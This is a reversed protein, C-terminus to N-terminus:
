LTKIKVTLQEVVVDSGNDDNTIKLEISEGDGVDDVFVIFSASGGDSSNSSDCGKGKIPTGDHFAQIEFSDTGADAGKFSVRVDIELNQTEGTNNQITNTTVSFDDGGQTKIITLNMHEFDGPTTLTTVSANDEVYGFFMLGDRPQLELADENANVAVVYGAKGAAEIENIEADFAVAGIVGTFRTITIFTNDSAAEVTTTRGGGTDLAQVEIGITDGPDLAVSLLDSGSVINIGGNVSGDVFVTELSGIAVDNKRFQYSVETIRNTAAETLRFHFEGTSNGLPYSNVIASGTLITTLAGGSIDRTTIDVFTETDVIGGEPTSLVPFVDVGGVSFPTGYRLVGGEITNQHAHLLSQKADLLTSSGSITVPRPTIGDTDVGLITLGLTPNAGIVGFRNSSADDVDLLKGTMVLDGGLEPAPDDVVNEIANDVTNKVEAASVENAGGLDLTQDEGQTHIDLAAITDNIADVDDQFEIFNTDLEELSLESGKTDFRGDVLTRLTKAM